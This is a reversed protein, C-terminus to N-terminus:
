MHRAIASQLDAATLTRSYQRNYHALLSQTIADASPMNLHNIRASKFISSLLRGMEQVRLEHSLSHSYIVMGDLDWVGFACRDGYDHCYVNSIKLDGHRIGHDHMVIMYRCVQEAFGDLFEPSAFIRECLSVSTLVNEVAENILYGSRLIGRQRREGVGLVAPTPIQLQELAAAAAAARFGRARRFLYKLSFYWGKNNARKIFVKQGSPLTVTGATTTRSVKAMDGGDLLQDLQPLLAGLLSDCDPTLYFTLDGM